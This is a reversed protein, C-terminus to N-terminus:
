ITFTVLAYWHDLDIDFKNNYAHSECVYLESLGRYTDWCATIYTQLHADDLKKNHNPLSKMREIERNIM